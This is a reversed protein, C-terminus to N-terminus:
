NPGAPGGGRRPPAGGSYKCEKAIHGPGGCSYCMRVGKSATPATRSSPGRQSPCYQKRHGPLGCSYCVAPTTRPAHVPGPVGTTSPYAVAAAAMFTDSVRVVDRYQRSLRRVEAEKEALVLWITKAFVAVGSAQPMMEGYELALSWQAALHDGFWRDVDKEALLRNIAAQGQVRVEARTTFAAVTSLGLTRPPVCKLQFDYLPLFVMGHRRKVIEGLAGLMAKYHDIQEEGLQKASSM